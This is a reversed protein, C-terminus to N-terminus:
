LKRKDPGFKDILKKHKKEDKIHVSCHDVDDKAFMIKCPEGKENTLGCNGCLSEM